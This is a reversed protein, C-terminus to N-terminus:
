FSFFALFSPTVQELFNQFEVWCVRNPKLAQSYHEMARLEGRQAWVVVRLTM